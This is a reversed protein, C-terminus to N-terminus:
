VAEKIKARLGRLFKPALANSFTRIDAILAQAEDSLLGDEPDLGREKAACKAIVVAEHGCIDLTALIRGLVAKGPPPCKSNEIASCYGPSIRSREAVVAQTMGLQERRRRLYAGVTNTADSNIM